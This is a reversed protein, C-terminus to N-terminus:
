LKIRVSVMFQTQQYLNFGISPFVEVKTNNYYVVKGRKTALGALTGLAAGCAIGIGVYPLDEARLDPIEDDDSFLTVIDEVPQDSNVSIGTVTGALLGLISGFIVGDGVTSKKRTVSMVENVPLCKDTSECIFFVSDNRM